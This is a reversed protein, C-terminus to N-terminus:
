EPLGLVRVPSPFYCITVQYKLAKSKLIQDKKLETESLGIINLSQEKVVKKIEFVKYRLSRINFHMNKIGKRLNTNGHLYRAWFNGTKRWKRSKKSVLSTEDTGWAQCTQVTAFVLQTSLDSLASM